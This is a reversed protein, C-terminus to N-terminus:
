RRTGTAAPPTGLLDAPLHAIFARFPKPSGLGRSLVLSGHLLMVVREARVSADEPAIGGDRALAAFADVLARFAAKIAAEFPGEGRPASLMNLLCAQRGGSYFRDLAAAVDALRDAPAGEGRMPAFVSAEFWGLASALVAEAMEAKGGPFRHYLSAKQLGAAEALRALSAGEYGVDRFVCGLRALLEEDEVTHPRAM